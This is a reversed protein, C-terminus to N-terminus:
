IHVIRADRFYLEPLLHYEQYLISIFDPCGRIIRHSSTTHLSNLNQATTYHLNKHNEAEINDKDSASRVLKMVRLILQQQSLILCSVWRSSAADSVYCLLRFRSLFILFICGVRLNSDNGMMSCSRVWTLCFVFTTLAVASHRRNGGSATPPADYTIM